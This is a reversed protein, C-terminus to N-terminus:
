CFFIKAFPFQTAFPIESVHITWARVTLLSGVQTQAPQGLARGPRLVVALGRVTLRLLAGRAGAAPRGGTDGSRQM